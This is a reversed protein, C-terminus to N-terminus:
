TAAADIALLRVVARGQEDSAALDVAAHVAWDHDGDPDALAQRVTWGGASEVVGFLDGGRAAAGTGVADHEAWYGAM